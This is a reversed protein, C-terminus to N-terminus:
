RFTLVKPCNRGLGNFCTELTPAPGATPILEIPPDNRTLPPLVGPPRTPPDRKAIAANTTSRFSSLMAPPLAEYEPPRDKSMWISFGRIESQQNPPTVVDARVYVAADREFAAIVFWTNTKREYAITRNNISRLRNYLDDLTVERFRLTDIALGAKKGYWNKGWTTREPASVLQLPIGISVGAVEDTTEKFGALDKKSTGLKILKAAEDSALRGTVPYGMRGQFKNIAKITEPGAIGDILGEYDTTWILMEQQQRIEDTTQAQGLAPVAFLCATVGFFRTLSPRARAAHV